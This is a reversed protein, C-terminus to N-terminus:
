RYDAHHLGEHDVVPARHVTSITISRVRSTDLRRGRVSLELSLGRGIWAVKLLTGGLTSGEIRVEAERDFRGGSALARLGGADLMVFHYFSNSTEVVLETGPSLRRVDVGTVTGTRPTTESVPAAPETHDGVRADETMGHSESLILM